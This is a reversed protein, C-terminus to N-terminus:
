PALVTKIEAILAPTAPQIWLDHCLPQAIMPLDPRVDEFSKNASRDPNNAAFIAFIMPERMVRGEFRGLMTAVPWLATITDEVDGKIPDLVAIVVVASQSGQIAKFDTAQGVFVLDAHAMMAPKFSQAIMCASAPTAACFFAASIVGIAQRTM